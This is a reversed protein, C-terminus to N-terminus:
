EQWLDVPYCHSTTTCGRGRGRPNARGAQGERARHGTLASLSWELYTYHCSATCTLHMADHPRAQAFAPSPLHVVCSRCLSQSWCRRWRHWDAFNAPQIHITVDNIHLWYRCNIFVHEYSYAHWVLLRHTFTTSQLSASVHVPHFHLITLAHSPWPIAPIDYTLAHSSSHGVRPSEFTYLHTHM